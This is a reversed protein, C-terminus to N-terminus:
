EEVLKASIKRRLEAYLDPRVSRHLDLLRQLLEVSPSENRGFVVDEIIERDHQTYRAIGDLDYDDTAVTDTIILRLFSTDLMCEEEVSTLKLLKFWASYKIRFFIKLEQCLLDCVLAELLFTERKSLQSLSPLQLFWFLPTRASM